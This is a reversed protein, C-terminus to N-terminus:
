RLMNYEPGGRFWIHLLTHPYRALKIYTTKSVSMQGPLCECCQLVDGLCPEFQYYGCCLLKEFSWLTVYGGHVPRTTHRTCVRCEQSETDATQLCASHGIRSKYRWTSRSSTLKRAYRFKPIPTKHVSDRLDTSPETFTDTTGEM